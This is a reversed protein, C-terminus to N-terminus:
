STYRLKSEIEYVNNNNFDNNYSFIHFLKVNSFTKHFRHLKIVEFINKEHSKNFYKSAKLQKHSKQCEYLYIWASKVSAKFWGSFSDTKRELLVYM